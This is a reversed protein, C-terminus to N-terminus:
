RFKKPLSIKPNARLAKAAEDSLTTLGYLHLDGEHRALAKAAGESLTTVRDLFLDGKHPGEETAAVHGLWGRVRRGRSLQVARRAVGFPLWDIRKVM